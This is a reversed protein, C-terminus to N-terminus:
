KRWTIWPNACAPMIGGGGGGRPFFSFTPMFFSKEVMVFVHGAVNQLLSSNTNVSFYVKLRLEEGEM